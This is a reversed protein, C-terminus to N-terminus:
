CGSVLTAEAIAAKLHDHAAELSSYEDSAVAVRLLQEVAAAVHGTLSFAEIIQPISAFEKDVGEVVSPWEIMGIQKDFIAHRDLYWSAKRLEQLYPAGVKKGARLMYKLSNGLHFSADFGYREIVEIAEIGADTRYHPPANVLDIQETM